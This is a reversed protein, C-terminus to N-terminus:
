RVKGKHLEIENSYLKDTSDITYSLRKLSISDFSPTAKQTSILYNFMERGITDLIITNTANASYHHRGCITSYLHGLDDATFNYHEELPILEGNTTIFFVYAQSSLQNYMPYRSFPHLESLCLCLLIYSLFLFWHKNFMYHQFLRQFFSHYKIILILLLMFYLYLHAIFLGGERNKLGIFILISQIVICVIAIPSKIGLLGLAYYASFGYIVPNICKFFVFLVVYFTPFWKQYESRSAEFFFWIGSQWLVILLCLSIICLLGFIKKTSYM